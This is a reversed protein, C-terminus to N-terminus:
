KAQESSDLVCSVIEYLVIIGYYPVKNPQAELLVVTEWPFSADM